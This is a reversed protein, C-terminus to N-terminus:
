LYPLPWTAGDSLRELGHYAPFRVSQCCINPFTSDYSEGSERTYEAVHERLQRELPVTM